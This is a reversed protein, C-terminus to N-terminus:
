CFGELDVEVDREVGVLVDGVVLSNDTGEGGDLVGEVIAGLGDDEHRVEAAGVARGVLLVGELRNNGLELLEQALLDGEGGVTDTGLNLLDDVLSLIAGDNEKLVESEVNLLLTRGLVLITVLGLGVLSLNLSEALTQGSKTVDVDTLIGICEDHCVISVVVSSAKPV